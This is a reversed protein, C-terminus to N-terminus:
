ILFLLFASGFLLEACGHFSTANVLKPFSLDMPPNWIQWKGRELMNWLVVLLNEGLRWHNEVHKWHKRLLNGYPEGLHEAYCWTKDWIRQEFKYEQLGFSELPLGFPFNEVISNLPTWVQINFIDFTQFSKHHPGIFSAWQLFSFFQVRFAGMFGM